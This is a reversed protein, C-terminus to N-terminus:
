DNPFLADINKFVDSTGIVVVIDNEQLVTTGIPTHVEDGRFLLCLTLNSPLAADQISRGLLPSKTTIRFENAKAGSENLFEDLKSTGAQLLRVASYASITTASFACDIMSIERFIRLYEPRHTLSIVKKVGLGKALICSLINDEDDSDMNVFVDADEMGAEKLIYEDTPDGEFFQIKRADRRLSDQLNEATRRNRCIIRVQYGAECAQHALDACTDDDGTLIINRVSHFDEPTVYDVFAEIDEKLGAVYVRDGQNLSLEGRIKTSLQQNRLVAGIRIKKMLSQDPYDKICVGQIPSNQPINLAVIRTAPNSQRFEDQLIQKRLVTFVRDAAEESTSFYHNLGYIEAPIGDEPSLCNKSFLRCITKKAGLRSAIQCALINTAEDGTVALFADSLAAGALKLTAIDTSSGKLISIDFRNKIRDLEDQSSDVLVVNHDESLTAALLRGLEGAGIIIINM